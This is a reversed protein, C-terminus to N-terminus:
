RRWSMDRSESELTAEIRDVRTQNEDMQGIPLLDNPTQNRHEFGTTPPGQQLLEIRQQQPGIGVGFSPFKRCKLRQMLDHRLAAHLQAIAPPRYGAPAERTTPTAARPIDHET